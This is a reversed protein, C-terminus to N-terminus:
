SPLLSSAQTGSSRFSTSRTNPAMTLGTITCSTETPTATCTYPGPDSPATASAVFHDAQNNAPLTWSVDLEEDGPTVTKGSPAFVCAAVVIAFLGFMVTMRIVSKKSVSPRM